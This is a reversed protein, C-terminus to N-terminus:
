GGAQTYLYILTRPPGPESQFEVGGFFYHPSDDDPIYRLEVPTQLSVVLADGLSKSLLGAYNGPDRRARTPFRMFAGAIARQNHRPVRAELLLWAIEGQWSKKVTHFGRWHSRIRNANMSPPCRAIELIDRRYSDPPRLRIPRENDAFLAGGPIVWDDEV